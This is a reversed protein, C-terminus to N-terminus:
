MVFIAGHLLFEVSNTMNKNLSFGSLKFSLVCWADQSTVSFSLEFHQSALTLQSQGVRFIGMSAAMNGIRASFSRIIAAMSAFSTRSMELSVPDPKKQTSHILSVIYTEIGSSRM